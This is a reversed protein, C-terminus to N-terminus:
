EHLILHPLTVQTIMKHLQQNTPKWTIIAGFRKHRRDKVKRCIIASRIAIEVFQPFMAFIQRTLQSVM